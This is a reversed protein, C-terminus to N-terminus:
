VTEEQYFTSIRHAIAIDSFERHSVDFASFSLMSSLEPSNRLKTILM